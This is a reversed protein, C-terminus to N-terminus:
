RCPKISPYSAFNFFTSFFFLTTNLCHVILPLVKFAREFFCFLQRGVPGHLSRVLLLLQALLVQRFTM